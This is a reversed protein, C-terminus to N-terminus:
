EEKPLNQLKKKRLYKEIASIDMEDLVIEEKTREDWYDMTFTYATRVDPESGNKLWYDGDNM